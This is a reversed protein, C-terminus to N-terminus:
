IFDGTDTDNSSVNELEELYHDVIADITDDKSVDNEDMSEDVFNGMASRFFSNQSKLRFDAVLSPGFNVMLLFDVIRPRNRYCKTM